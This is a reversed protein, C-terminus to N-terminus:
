VATFHDTCEAIHAIDAEHSGGFAPIDKEAATCRSINASAYLDTGLETVIFDECKDFLSKIEVFFVAALTFTDATENVTETFFSQ